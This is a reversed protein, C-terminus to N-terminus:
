LICSGATSPRFTSNRTFPFTPASASSALHSGLVWSHPQLLPYHPPSTTDSAGYKSLHSGSGNGEQPCGGPVQGAGWVTSPESSLFIDMVCDRLELSLSLYAFLCDLSLYLTCIASQVILTWILSLHHQTPEQLIFFYFWPMGLLPNYKCLSFCRCHGAPGVPAWARFLCHWPIRRIKLAQIMIGSLRPKMWFYHSMAAKIKFTDTAAATFPSNSSCVALPLFILVTLQQFLGPLFTLPSSSNHCQFLLVARQSVPALLFLVFLALHLLWDLM